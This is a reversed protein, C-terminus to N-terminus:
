LGNRELPAWSVVGKCYPCGYVGGPKPPRTRFYQQRCPGQCVGVYRGPPRVVCATETVEPNGGIKTCIARWVVDHGHRPGTLGHAVEHLAWGRVLREAFGNAAAIPLSLEIRGPLRDRPYVCLGPCTRRRNWRFEWSHRPLGHLIMLDLVLRTALEQNM